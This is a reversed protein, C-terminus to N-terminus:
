GLSCLYSALPDSEGIEWTGIQPTIRPLLHDGTLLLQDDPLSLCIHGASHGPTWLAVVRRGAIGVDEGHVLDVDVEVEVSIGASLSRFAGIAELAQGEPVGCLDAWMRLGELDDGKEAQMRLAERDAPHMALWCGSEKKLRPALGYHDVHAHTVFAGKVDAPKAGMQALYRVFADWAQDSPWGPDVVYLDSGSVIVYCLVYRLASEPMPLPLSWVGPRVEELPPLVNLARSNFQAHGTVEFM